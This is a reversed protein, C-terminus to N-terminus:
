NKNFAFIVGKKPFKRNNLSRNMNQMFLYQRNNSRLREMYFDPKTIIVRKEMGKDGIIKNKGGLINVYHIIREFERKIRGLVEIDFEMIKRDIGMKSFSNLDMGEGAKKTEFIIGGNGKIIKRNERGFLFSILRRRRKEFLRVLRNLKKMGAGEIKRKKEMSLIKKYIYRELRLVTRKNLIGKKLLKYQRSEKGYIKGVLRRFLRNKIIMRKRKERKEKESLRSEGGFNNKLINLIFLLKKNVRVERGAARRKKQMEKRMKDIYEKLYKRPNKLREIMGGEKVRKKILLKDKKGARRKSKEKQLRREKNMFIVSSLQKELEGRQRGMLLGGEKSIRYIKGRMDPQEGDRREGNINLGEWNENIGDRRLRGFLKKRWKRTNIFEINEGSRYIIQRRRLRANNRIGDVRNGESFFPNEIQGNEEIKEQYKKISQESIGDQFHLVKRKGLVRDKVSELMEEGLAVVKLRRRWFPIIKIGGTQRLEEEWRGSRFGKNKGILFKYPKRKKAGDVAPNLASVLPEEAAKKNEVRREVQVSEEERRKDLNNNSVVREDMEDLERAWSALGQGILGVAERTKHSKLLKEVEGRVYREQEEIRKDRMEETMTAENLLRQINPAFARREAIDLSDMYAMAVDELKLEQRKRDKVVVADKINGRRDHKKGDLKDVMNWLSESNQHQLKISYLAGNGQSDRRALYVRGDGNEGPSVWMVDGDTQAITTAIEDVRERLRRNEELPNTVDTLSRGGYKEFYVTKKIEKEGTLGTVTAMGTEFRVKEIKVDHKPERGFENIITRQDGVLADVAESSTMARNNFYRGGIAGAQLSSDYKSCGDSALAGQLTSQLGFGVAPVEMM